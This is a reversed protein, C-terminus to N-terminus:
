PPEVKKPGMRNRESQPEFSDFSVEIRQNKLESHTATECKKALPFIYKETSLFLVMKFKQYNKLHTAIEWGNFGPAVGQYKALIHIYLHSPPLNISCDELFCWIAM